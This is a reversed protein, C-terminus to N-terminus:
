TRFLRLAAYAGEIKCMGPCNAFDGGSVAYKICLADETSCLTGEQSRGGFTLLL